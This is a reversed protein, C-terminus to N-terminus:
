ACRNRNVLFPSGIRRESLHVYLRDNIFDAALHYGMTVMLQHLKKLKQAGKYEHTVELHIMRPRHHLLGVLAEYEAGQIDMHLLSVDGISLDSIIEALPRGIVKIPQNAQQIYPLKKATKRNFRYISGQSSREGDITTPYFDLTGSRDAVAYELVEVDSNTLASRVARARQPDAEVAIVRSNPFTRKLHLADGGDYSGVDFIVEPPVGLEDFWKPNFSSVYLRQGDPAEIWQDAALTSHM